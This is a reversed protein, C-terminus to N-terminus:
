GREEANAQPEKAALVLIAAVVGGITHEAAEAALAIGRERATASTVPGISVCRTPAPLATALERGVADVFGRVTSSSTFTVFHVGGSMLREVTEEDASAATVTRYAAVVDVQAGQARLGEPVTDPAEAARALLIRAGTLDAQATLAEVLAEGTFRAPQCDARIGLAALRETTAKGISAVYPLARADRGALTLRDFFAEVGNVSTFVVWDCADLRGIAEDLPGHSEPPEIRITPMEIVEAGLAELRRSLESAQTRSRTVLVTRGFLPRNEFWQLQERLAVVKGVVLVAPPEIAAGVELITGLTGAVCRQSPLTGWRVLAAPTDEPLGGARLAQVIESLRKVGMYVVLTGAGKALADWDLATIAKTPDEHGTVFALSSTCGRHTVPIGAYAPAAVGATVGPVVEFPVGAEALVLAEEAGRGFVYPDGGKLRCVRKGEMAKAVLLANIDAQKMTHQGGRKGVCILEADPRAEDLLRPNALLDYVVADASRLCEMGKVTILGPDGPGAGVLFVIGQNM